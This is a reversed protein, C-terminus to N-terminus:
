DRIEPQICINNVLQSWNNRSKPVVPPNETCKGWCQPLDFRPTGNQPDQWTWIASVDSPYYVCDMKVQEFQSDGIRILEEGLGTLRKVKYNQFYISVFRKGKGYFCSLNVSAGFPVSENLYHGSAKVYSIHQNTVYLENFPQTPDIQSQIM